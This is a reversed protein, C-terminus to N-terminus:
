ENNRKEIIFLYYRDKEDMNYEQLMTFNKRIRLQKKVFNKENSYMIIRGKDRLIETAKEFFKGYFADQEEKSKQGREPMNTIIEDFLYEHTFEFFDRNIYYVQQGALETNERAGLIAKGFIDVGYMVRAPCIRNREILMTGVGCFPDIIQAEQEMYPKALAVALAAQEPRISAAVTNKRYQFRKDSLTFFKILPLFTGDSKEMLRIEIEYDSTSNELQYSTGKELAFALKKAFEGRKDLSMRSHIGLRFRCKEETKHARKLLGLLNSAALEKAAEEPQPQLTRINLLFLMERYTPIELLERIDNTKVRVGSKMSLTKGKRIQRSTVEQHVKGTTLIVEYEEQYGQFVLHKCNKKDSVMKRLATMEERIHKEENEAPQYVELEALRKELQPVFEQYNLQALATLYDSKVFRQTEKQYAEYLAAVTEQAQLKGLILATNKRVKADEHTLFKQFIDYDGQLIKQWESVVEKDKLEQKISILEKRPSDTTKLNEYQQVIM